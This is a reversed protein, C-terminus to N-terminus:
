RAMYRGLAEQLGVSGLPGSPRLASLVHFDSLVVDLTLHPRPSPWDGRAKLINIAKNASCALPMANPDPTLLQDIRNMAKSENSIFLGRRIM